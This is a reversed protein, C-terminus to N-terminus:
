PPWRGMHNVYHFHYWQIRRMKIFRITYLIDGSFFKSIKADLRKASWTGPVIGFREIKEYKSEVWKESIKSIDYMTTFIKNGWYLAYNQMQHVKGCDDNYIFWDIVYPALDWIKNLINFSCKYFVLNKEEINKLFINFSCEFFICINTYKKFTREINWFIKM